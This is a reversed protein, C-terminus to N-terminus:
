SHSAPKMRALRARLLLSLLLLSVASARMGAVAFRELWISLAISGMAPGRSQWLTIPVCLLPLLIYLSAWLRREPIGLLRLPRGTSQPVHRLWLVLAVIVVALGFVSSGYQLWSYFQLTHGGWEPAYDTLVPFMRVGAANEHTFADWVLHTIAALLIVLATYLWGRVGPPPASADAERVRVYAGDPIIGLMAPKILRLTLWYAALGVPLCYTFLGPLSHPRFGGPYVPVLWGFDPVMSGIVAASLLHLRSLARHAPLVAAVHSVTFPM